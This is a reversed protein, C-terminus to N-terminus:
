SSSVAARLVEKVDEVEAETRFGKGSFHTRTAKFGRSRLEDLVETLRPESKKLLKCISGTTYYTIGQVRSEDLICKLFARHEAQIESMAQECVEEKWLDGLFLPGIMRLKSGCHSCLGEPPLKRFSAPERHLCKDCHLIFGFKKLLGDTRRAGRDLQSYLRFYSGSFYSFIPTLSLEYQAGVEIVKKALIRLGTEGYYETKHSLAGYKRFCAAPYTGCLCATDTSTLALIGHRRLSIAASSLFPNPSGYPDVDIFDFKRRVSHLLRNAESNEVRVSECKMRNHNLGLNKLMLEYADKSFDNM